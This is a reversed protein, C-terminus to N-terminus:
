GCLRSIYRVDHRKREDDDSKEVKKWSVQYTGKIPMIPHVIGDPPATLQRRHLSVWKTNYMDGLLIVVFWWRSAWMNSRRDEVDGVCGTAPPTTKRGIRVMFCMSACSATAKAAEVCIIPTPMNAGMPHILRSGETSIGENRWGINGNARAPSRNEYRTVGRSFSSSTRKANVMKTIQKAIHTRIRKEGQQKFSHM